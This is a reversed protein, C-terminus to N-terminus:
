LTVGYEEQAAEIEEETCGGAELLGALWARLRINTDKTENLEERLDEIECGACFSGKFAHEKGCDNM